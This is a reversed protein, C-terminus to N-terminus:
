KQDLVELFIEEFEKSDIVCDKMKKFEDLDVLKYETYKESLKISKENFNIIKAKYRIGPITINGKSFSYDKFPNYVEIDLNFDDKYGKILAEKLTLGQKIECCGFEWLGEYIGSSKSRKAMFIRNDNTLCVAVCHMEIFESPIILAKSSESKSESGLVNEIREMKFTINRDYIIQSLISNVEKHRCDNEKLRDKYVKVLEQQEDEDYFFSNEITCGAIYEDHYWIVPYLRNDWIGKLKDYSIIHLKSKVFKSKSLIYALELSLTLRRPNTCKKSIRFGIDIDNGQFEVVKVNDAVKYDYRLNYKLDESAIDSSVLALWATAKISLINQERLELVNIPKVTTSDRFISGDKITLHIDNLTYFVKEIIKEIKNVNSVVITFVVEDGISRWLQFNEDISKVKRRITDTIEYIVNFWNLYNYSKFKTSNVLDFSVFLILEEKKTVANARNITEYANVSNFAKKLKERNESANTEINNM